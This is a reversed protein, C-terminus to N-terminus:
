FRFDYYGSWPQYWAWARPPTYYRPTYYSRSRSHRRQWGRDGRDYDRGRDYRGNDYRGNNHRGSEGRSDSWGGRRDSDRAEAQTPMLAAFGGIGGLLAALALPRFWKAASAGTIQSM